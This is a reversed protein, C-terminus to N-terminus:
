TFVSSFVFITQIWSAITKLRYLCNRNRIRGPTAIPRIPEPLPEIPKIPPQIPDIPQFTGPENPLLKPAPTISVILDCEASTTAKPSSSNSHSASLSETSELPIEIIPTKCRECRLNPKRFRSWICDCIIPRNTRKSMTKVYEASSISGKKDLQKQFSNPIRDLVIKFEVSKHGLKQNM